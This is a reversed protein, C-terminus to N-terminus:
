DLRERQGRCGRLALLGLLGPQAWLDLQDSLDLLGSLEEVGRRLWRWM